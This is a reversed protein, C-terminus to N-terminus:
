GFVVNYLLGLFVAGFVLAGLSGIVLALAIGSGRLFQYLVMRRPFILSNKTM